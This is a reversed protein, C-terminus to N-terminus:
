KMGAATTAQPDIAKIAQAAAQRVYPDPDNLTKLLPQVASKFVSTYVPALYRLLAEAAARRVAPSPHELFGIIARLDRDSVGYGLGFVPRKNMLDPNWGWSYYPPGEAKLFALMLVADTRARSNASQCVAELAPIANTGIALLAMVGQWETNTRGAIKQLEPLAPIANSGLEHLALMAPGSYRDGSYLSLKLWHQKQVLRLLAKKLASDEHGIRAVLFPLCNTGMARVAESFPGIHEMDGAQNCADLWQTLTRGQHRPERKPWSFWVSAVLFLALALGALIFRRRNTVRRNYASDVGGDLILRFRNWAL